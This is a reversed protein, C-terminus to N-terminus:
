GSPDPVGADRAKQCTVIVPCLADLAGAGLADQSGPADFWRDEIRGYRLAGLGSAREDM